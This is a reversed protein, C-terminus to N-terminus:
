SISHNEHFLEVAAELDQSPPPLLVICTTILCFWQRLPFSCGIAQLVPNHHEPSVPSTPTTTPPAKTADFTPAILCCILAPLLVVNM